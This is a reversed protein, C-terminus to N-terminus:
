GHGIESNRPDYGRDNRQRMLAAPYERRFKEIVPPLHVDALVKAAGQVVAEINNLELHLTALEGVRAEYRLAVIDNQEEGDITISGHCAANLEIHVKKAM